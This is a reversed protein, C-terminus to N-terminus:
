ILHGKNFRSIFLDYKILFKKQIKQFSGYECFHIKEVIKPNLLRAIVASHNESLKVGQENYLHLEKLKDSNLLALNEINNAIGFLTLIEVNKFRGLHKKM